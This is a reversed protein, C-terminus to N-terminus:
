SSVEVKIPPLVPQGKRMRQLRELQNLTKDFERSLHAECRILRDSTEQSPIRASASNPKPKQAETIPMPGPAEDRDLSSDAGVFQVLINIPESGDDDEIRNSIRATEVQLLRRKRWLVAALNEVLVTELKGEPQFDEMLGNLLVDYEARLEDQLLVAKSFLGHKRANFKSREKGQPTRPGTSKHISPQDIREVKASKPSSSQKLERVPVEASYSPAQHGNGNASAPSTRAEQPEGSQQDSM